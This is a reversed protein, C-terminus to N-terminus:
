WFIKNHLCVYENIAKRYGSRFRMTNEDKYMSCFTCKNYICGSTVPVLVTNMEDQPYHIADSEYM